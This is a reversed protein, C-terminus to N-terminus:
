FIFIKKLRHYYPKPPTKENKVQHITLSSKASEEVKSSKDFFTAVTEAVDGAELDELLDEEHCGFIRAFVKCLQKSQLNYIRKVVGPLLLRVWVYLDGRFEKGDTGRGFFRGVVESKANYSPM